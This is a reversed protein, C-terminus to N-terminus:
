LFRDIFRHYFNIKDIDVWKIKNVSQSSNMCKIIKTNKLYIYDAGVM